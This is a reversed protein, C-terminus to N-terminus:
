HLTARALACSVGPDLSVTFASLVDDPWRPSVGVAIRLNPDRELDVKPMVDKCNYNKRNINTPQDPFAVYPPHYSPVVGVGRCGGKKFTKMCYGITRAQTYPYTHTHIRTHIYTHTHTHAHTHTHCYPTLTPPSRSTHSHSLTPTHSRNTM